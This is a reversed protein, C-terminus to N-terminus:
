AQLTMATLEIDELPTRLARADDIEAIMVVPGLMWENEDNMVLAFILAVDGQDAVIVRLVKSGYQEVGFTWREEDDIKLILSPYDDIDCDQLRVAELSHDLLLYRRLAVPDIEITPRM